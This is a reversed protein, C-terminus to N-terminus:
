ESFILDGFFEPTHFDPKETKVPSWTLYHPVSLNNGCKYFNAKFRREEFFNYGGYGFIEFPIAVTLEWEIPGTQEEMIPSKGLSPYRRITEIVEKELFARNERRIGVEALCTGIANFEFNYYAGINKRYFFFEVCSDEWVNQNSEIKSAILFEEKVKFKLLIEKTSYAITFVVHPCYGFKEWNVIDINNYSGWKDLKESVEEMNPFESSFNLKPIKLISM